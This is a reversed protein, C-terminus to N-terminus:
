LSFGKKDALLFRSSVHQANAAFGIPKAALATEFEERAVGASTRTEPRGDKETPSHGFFRKFDRSFQSPSEYGVRAAAVSVTLRDYKIHLRAKQLRVSKMYQLPSQGTIQKFSHHFASVSMGVENAIEPVKLPRSYNHHIWDIAGYIKGMYHTRDLMACLVSGHPGKLVRYILERIAGSGLIMADTTSQLSHLLRLLAESMDFDLPTPAAVVPSSSVPVHVQLELKHALELLVSMDARVSVALLPDGNPGSETEVEFPTAVAFVLYHNPNVVFQTEGFCGRKRGSVVIYISPEYIILSRPAGGNSRALKVGSLVTPHLGDETVLNLLLQRLRDLNANLRYDHETM